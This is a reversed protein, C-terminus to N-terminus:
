GASVAPIYEKEAMLVDLPMMCLLYLELPADDLLERMDLSLIYHKCKNCGEAREFKQDELFFLPLDLPSDQECVPCTTRSFGWEHRCLSCQLFRKGEKTKLCSGHPRSGCIPCYSKGWTPLAVSAAAKEVRKAAAGALHIAFLTAADANFENNKAWTKIKPMAGKLRFAALERAADKNKGLFAGIARIEEKIEPLGKAAASTIKKPAAKLFVEDLYLAPDTTLAPLWPKGQAFAATDLKPLEPAPLEEALTNQAELLPVFAKLIAASHPHQKALRTVVAKAINM